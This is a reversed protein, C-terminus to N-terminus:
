LSLLLDSIINELDIMQEAQAEAKEALEENKKALVDIWELKTYQVEHYQYLNDTPRGEEDYDLKEIDTHVYVTDAGMVIPIAQTKSGKIIGVDVM